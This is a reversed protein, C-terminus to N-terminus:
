VRRDNGRFRFGEAAVSRTWIEDIIADDLVRYHALLEGAGRTWPVLLHSAGGWRQCAEAVADLSDESSGEDVLLANHEPMLVRQMAVVGDLRHDEQLEDPPTQACLGLIV